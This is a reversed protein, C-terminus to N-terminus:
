QARSELLSLLLIYYIRKPATKCSGIYGTGASETSYMHLKSFSMCRGKLTNQNEQRRLRVVALDAVVVAAVVAVVVAVVVAAVM